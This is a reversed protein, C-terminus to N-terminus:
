IFNANLYEIEASIADARNTYYDPLLGHGVPAMNVRWLCPWHRTFSAVWGYEGFAARLGHFLIRLPISVPEVHSARKIAADKPVLEELSTDYLFQVEGTPSITVELTRM